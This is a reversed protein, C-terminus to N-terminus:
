AELLRAAVLAKLENPANEEDALEPLSGDDRVYTVSGGLRDCIESGCNAIANM